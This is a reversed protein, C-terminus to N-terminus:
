NQCFPIKPKNYCAIYCFCLYAKALIIGRNSDAGLGWLDRRRRRQRRKRIRLFGQSGQSDQRGQRDQLSDLLWLTYHFFCVLCSFEWFCIIACSSIFACRLKKKTLQIVKCLAKFHFLYALIWVLLTFLFINCVHKFFDSFNWPCPMKKWFNLIFACNILFLTCKNSLKSYTDVLQRVVYLM